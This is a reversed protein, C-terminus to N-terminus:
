LSPTSPDFTSLMRSSEYGHRLITDVISLETPASPLSPDIPLQSYDVWEIAIQRQWFETPDLYSRAAVGTVYVSAGAAQAIDALRRSPSGEFQFKEDTLIQVNLGIREALWQTSYLNISSLHGHHSLTSFLEKFDAVISPDTHYLSAANRIIGFHSKTWSTDAVLTEKIPQHYKGKTSVPITLWHEGESTWILNRNRWDRKTFQVSDYFVLLDASRIM